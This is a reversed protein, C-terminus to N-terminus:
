DISDESRWIHWQPSCWGIVFDLLYAVCDRAIGDELRSYYDALPQYVQQQNQGMDHLATLCKYGQRLIAHYTQETVSACLAKIQCIVRAPEM